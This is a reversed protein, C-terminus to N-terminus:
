FTYSVVYWTTGDSVLTVKLAGGTAGGAFSSLLSNSQTGDSYQINQDFQLTQSPSFQNIILMRNTSSAVPPLTITRTATMGKVIIIYDNSAVTYNQDTIVKLNTFVPNNRVISLITDKVPTTVLTQALTQRVQQSGLSDIIVQKTSDRYTKSNVGIKFHKFVSSDAKSLVNGNIDYLDIFGRKGVSDAKGRLNNFISDRIVKNNTVMNIISDRVRGKNLSDLVVTSVSDRFAKSNVGIKFHKFVSSDSKALVNGNIDYLDIFGRKGVSDAKGRLNNFISDRIVKNNTVMNIISDRVRGKNLSDLVVTSVSDRFALSNVGIKFHKFVSSDSKALVNGNIDYLDIFGRKGVSDAKGRLNNFISDRIVKNNTVMNVISDRVRGKNLSDLVVTSVSDRFALSNVGIKFHKFVSSDSKALVNGNIDYLDIFGRKGVSDAKSRLNVFMSDRFTTSKILSDKISRSTMQLVSDRVRGKNLSDLVVTSVSDRFALSNVGIKFHKFVSSDSKALVNGNLDYLDIFGRKGVSDAKGRLNNFISDRIVKNNTVMNVISDRVRGKNLSDLVVTSVSDRFALSNVGIKFHKFVSSDSKALVNGNIDYLDIFGRKGVSDAKSRLNVFMSDRFTTSKILSDKISRSTMQLVSDRVRGKNLSDLVVTSVSDRFALSNVGIKFHKFVSSDSKALVNGNIDYLDIFGRKGVSDAKSRLNVFMSDRFTTSKILSDKISRSTMQLVSDRVRGKNLSDLVVTSVSDRFGQSNVGIKFHKFVSSDSKALVNGNIDYLDIFGRKGVSDAKGRLNNFISDRIVKNNTVMNIISDRVRGKNLSDLVVTSVSDRFALSNVGIKFHKFVSSDSKALVNGNIDYLDIFGRKGVSDAKGRLNVFMSDRFTTSKILSDKISRSTMQLVSDRVRGKNLSDLVVTSVSDRFALSNVGIKFHKFVSSDSKALVNGNIDYLDIFGRKGVSDAKSRLNVFMSDRFTTSKILSDKISRSTMQLVSDRVRGKNLSDLVVTSVSDRFALSNVGIKFHKFVSSDSKALVNGNIDYLDIFGRKGVSDAKSRLNVFMSDRFTTSKILSDKISRSTMQLVSDRVRGRNLSDLVVTSVSDRFGQSNVGIKFHKFVSSDSKALVNGNIDYLDIFGRKGVSDAKGRLNNFISDRIVKNNTVMNVISDRVRGKNLSDLVVTSVSDRFGQSNVGIKFHKFVSSDSKALVNGNIDYLDIFGRKGVSDAKGRLNNFISDRIVKNNTVMNVISDRVRGKNLSDLVVTSVSDRFGQSNVGIKFHKFVSSDSKALVNGNIDYLDIFGRKGVSDAKGRLNVFMSDRFTTSKILSDKISRSTMQLVSDRVRGRNLSDLVVTSVSDRFALSNVGIKFHKFVSSDSKALVNGNIDYLDIFGRKGVSDAKGRLNNFISDRIVKNNTVMNVISDRVRGKNLSDLVVTSVSDRFALSNVGIKFHKFVSSDSKALVNGNIDYLDIFGRKGVSDAKSRLNVFMSDRFTTSKILSDKISRSTMQLVSDRVRGRNLSDLVVTSVSDRFGQSNVGIKFHKFVSSDSKALVNGNIDYLDIFGRKGVSDAKGRLNVFMSDRFTNSKILSDKISRSTMQLVSDRVRGRNLSDLVVTSVSDRFGQSNVGIKFHKFVSSDSKALVNGNIDYLDIFGRKGVSDAKGRLNVFMSDRFTNSKILSDKISRSTMQLVSDRVRGKNLSDLVVTSVSDRFALSNVGIKFHKFVSSDSKALVNGNIDYLDIFGRKGVSDAKGRLNVFMSDRFTNSKILSDKINRSTMQLVSDRVRGKNLSDLVVTSVSDRFGQSNVGIKFHKFVSSDARSLVNGNADYLDIFGRKGVSDAKGRLNVFMSDRFTTSKILSDKINRSTMQLVSDRVRGRNLSDLVVTSVSDRLGRSNVGIRFYKLVSSDARSLVNGNSDYLDIFGSKGVSDKRIDRSRILSIVTDRFLSDTLLAKMDIDLWVPKLVSSDGGAIVLKNSKSRMNQGSSKILNIISDRLVKNNTIETLFDGGVYIWKNAPNGDAGSWYYFGAGNGGKVGAATNFVLLGKAPAVAVPYPDMVDRLAIRPVLVGKDAATVDLAASADPTTTGVGVQAKATLALLFFCTLLLYLKRIM